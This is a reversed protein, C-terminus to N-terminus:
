IYRVLACITSEITSRLTEESVRYIPILLTTSREVNRLKHVRLTYDFLYYM